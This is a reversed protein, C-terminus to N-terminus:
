DWTHSLHESSQVRPHVSSQVRPHVTGHIYSTSSPAGDMYTLPARLEMCSPADDWTHSLHESNQVRPNMTGHVHIHTTNPA